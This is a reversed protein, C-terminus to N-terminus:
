EGTIAAGKFIEHEEGLGLAEAVKKNVVKESDKAFFVPIEGVDKGNLVEEAMRAAEEGLKTYDVGDTMLLGNDVPGKEAAFSPIGAEELRKGIIPAASAILNDTICFFGDISGTLSALAQAVDNINNVGIVKLDLGMDKTNAELEEIQFQSNAENTSYLAGITKIDPFVTLFSELQKRSPFYDSAGTVNGGPKENSEVLEASEANTVASFIIPIDQVANKAGQAAPTAIAYIIDVGEKAISQPISNTLTMDGQCSKYIEEVEYGDVKLQNVFGERARDLAVHEIFQIIGVKIKKGEDVKEVETGEGVQGCATLVILVGLILALIGRRKM